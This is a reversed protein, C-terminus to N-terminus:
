FLKKKRESNQQEVYKLEQLDDSENEKKFQMFDKDIYMSNGRSSM